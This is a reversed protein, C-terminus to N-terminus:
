RTDKLPRRSQIRFNAAFKGRIASNETSVSSDTWNYPPTLRNKGINEVARDRKRFSSWNEFLVRPLTGM